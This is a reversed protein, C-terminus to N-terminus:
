TVEFEAILDAFRCSRARVVNSLPETTECGVLEAAEQDDGSTRQCFNVVLNAGTMAAAIQGVFIVILERPQRRAGGLHGTPQDDMELM